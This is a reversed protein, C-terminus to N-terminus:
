SKENQSGGLTEKVWPRNFYWFAGSSLFLFCVNGYVLPTGYILKKITVYEDSSAYEAFDTYSKDVLMNLTHGANGIDQVIDLPLYLGWLIVAYHILGLLIVLLSVPRAWAQRRLLGTGAFLLLVGELLQWYSLFRSIQVHRSKFLDVKRIFHNRISEHEKLYAEVNGSATLRAYHEEQGFVDRKSQDLTKLTDAAANDIVKLFEKSWTRQFFFSSCFCLGSIVFFVGVVILSITPVVPGKVASKGTQM